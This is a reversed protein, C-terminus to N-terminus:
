CISNLINQSPVHNFIYVIVCLDIFLSCANMLLHKRVSVLWVCHTVYSPPAFIVTPALAPGISFPVAKSVRCANSNTSCPWLPLCCGCLVGGRDGAIVKVKSRWFTFM